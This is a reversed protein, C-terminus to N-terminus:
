QKKPYEYAINFSADPQMTLVLKIWDREKEPQKDRLGLLKIPPLNPDCPKFPEIRGDPLTVAYRVGGTDAYPKRLEITVQLQKWKEPLGVALCEGVASVADIQEKTAKQAAAALPALALCLAVAFRSM